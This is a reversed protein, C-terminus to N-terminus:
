GESSRAHPASSLRVRVDVLDLVIAAARSAHGGCVPYADLDVPAPMEPRRVTLRASGGGAGLAHKGAGCTTSARPRVGRGARQSREERTSGQGRARRGERESARDELGAANFFCM